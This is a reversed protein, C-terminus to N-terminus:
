SRFSMEKLLIFDDLRPKWDLDDSLGFNFELHIVPIVGYDEYMISAVKRLAEPREDGTLPVAAAIAEDLAPDCYTSAGGDCRYYAAATQSLDMFENSHASAVLWGRDAPVEDRPVGYAQEDFQAQEVVESRANLGIVRLQGALYEGFEASRAFDGVRTVVSIPADVAVGEARADEVLQKAADLDYPYPPLNPDYGLASPGVLQGAPVGGGLLDDVVSQRDVAFAIANRVRTDAMAPHMTDLRLFLTEISLVSLCVPVTACEEPTLYRGIQAEGTQVMAARVGSEERFVFEGEAITVAGRADAASNGWWDPNAEIRIQQGKQWEAFRYPGTGIPHIPLSEPDEQIQRMSPIPSFYLRAPLIPDPEETTVDVTYEDVATATMDPGVFQYIGFANEPSWTYNIGFAAVEANFPEGNHFTVGERLKFRWTAPDVLEWSIALEGVLENTTPDRNLLAEQVNRLIPHGTNSYAM